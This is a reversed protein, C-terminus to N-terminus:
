QVQVTAPEEAEPYIGQDMQQWKKLIEQRNKQKFARQEKVRAEFRDMRQERQLDLKVFLRALAQKAEAETKRPKMLQWQGVDGYTFAVCNPAKKAAVKCRDKADAKKSVAGIPCIGIRPDVKLKELGGAAKAEEMLALTGKELRAMGDAQAVGFVGFKQNKPFAMPVPKSHSPLNKPRKWEEHQTPPAPMVSLKIDDGGTEEGAAAGAAGQETDDIKEAPAIPPASEDAM